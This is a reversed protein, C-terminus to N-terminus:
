KAARWNQETRKPLIIFFSTGKNEKSQVEIRGGHLNIIQQSISLGLGTGGTARARAEDVRYFRDFINLLKEQPIGIGTDTVKIIVEERTSVLQIGVYGGDPTYKIANAIINILCQQIREKDLYVQVQEVEVFDLEINKQGALPNLTNIVTRILYNVYSLSFELDMQEKELEVLYLLSNIINSLRDVESDIDKLFDQYVEKEVDKSHLLSESLIKISSLPTRLEHSVNSVFQKRQSEVQSLKSIMHNFSHSLNALEDNGKVPAMVDTKGQTVGRVIETLKEIPTSMIDAFFFSVVGSIIIAALSLLIFLRMTNNINVFVDELSSSIFVTGVVTGQDIIPVAVYLVKGVDLFNYQNVVSKGSLGEAIENVDDVIEGEYTDFSDILVRGDMGVVMVRSDIDLSMNKIINELYLKTHDKEIAYFNPSVRNSIINGQTLLGEKKEQINNSTLSANIFSNM